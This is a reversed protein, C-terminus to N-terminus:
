PQQHDTIEKMMRDIADRLAPWEDADVKITQDKIGVHGSQQEIELFEGAAEDEISVHTAMESFIPEGEPMVTIRTTRAIINRDTM